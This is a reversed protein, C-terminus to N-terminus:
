QEHLSIILARQLEEKFRKRNNSRVEAIRSLRLSEEIASQIHIEGTNLEKKEENKYEIKHNKEAEKIKKYDYILQEELIGAEHLAINNQPNQNLLSEYHSNGRWM